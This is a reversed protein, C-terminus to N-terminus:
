IVIQIDRDRHRAAMQCLSLYIFINQEKKLIDYTARNYQGKYPRSNVGECSPFPLQITHIQM